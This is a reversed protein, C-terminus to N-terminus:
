CTHLGPNLGWHQCFFNEIFYLILETHHVGFALGGGSGDQTGLQARRDLDIYISWTSPNHFLPSMVYPSTSQFVGSCGNGARLSLWEKHPQASLPEVKMQLFACWSQRPDWVYGSNGSASRKKDTNITIIVAGQDSTQHSSCWSTKDTIVAVQPISIILGWFQTGSLTPHAGAAVFHAPLLTPIQAQKSGFGRNKWWVWYVFAIEKTMLGAGEGQLPHVCHVSSKGKDDTLGPDPSSILKLICLVWTSSPCEDRQNSFVCTVQFLPLRM